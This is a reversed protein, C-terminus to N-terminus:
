RNEGRATNEDALFAAAASSAPAEARAQWTLYTVPNEATWERLRAASHAVDGHQLLLEVIVRTDSARRTLLDARAQDDVPRDALPVDLADRIAALLARVPENLTTHSPAATTSRDLATPERM